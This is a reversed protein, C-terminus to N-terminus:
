KKIISARITEKKIYVAIIILLILLYIIMNASGITSLLNGTPADIVTVDPQEKNEKYETPTYQYVLVDKSYLTENNHMLAINHTGVDLDEIKYTISFCDTEDLTQTKVIENDIVLDVTDSQPNTLCGKM